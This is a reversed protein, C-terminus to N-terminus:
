VQSQQCTTLKQPLRMLNTLLLIIRLYGETVVSAQQDSNTCTENKTSIETCSVPARTLRCAHARVYIGGRRM